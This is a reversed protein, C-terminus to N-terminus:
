SGWKASATAIDFALLRTQARMEMVGRLSEQIYSVVPQCRLYWDGCAARTLIQCRPQRSKDVLVFVCVSM